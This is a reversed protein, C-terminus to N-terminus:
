AVASTVEREARGERSRAAAERAERKYEGSEAMYVKRMAKEDIKTTILPM